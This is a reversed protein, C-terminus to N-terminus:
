QFAISEFFRFAQEDLREFQQPPSGPHFQETKDCQRAQPEQATIIVSRLLGKLPHGPQPRLVGRTGLSVLYQKIYFSRQFIWLYLGPSFAPYLRMGRIRFDWNGQSYARIVTIGLIETVQGPSLRLNSEAMGPLCGGKNPWSQFNGLLLAQREADGLERNRLGQYIFALPVGSSGQIFQLIRQIDGFRIPIGSDEFLAPSEVPQKM